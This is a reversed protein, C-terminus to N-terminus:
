RRVRLGGIVEGEGLTIAFTGGRRLLLDFRAPAEQTAFGSRGLGPIRIPSPKEVDVTLVLQDGVGAEIEVPDSAGADIRKEIVAGDGPPDSAKATTRETATTTTEESQPPPTLAAAFSSIVLLVILVAILRRAAMASM